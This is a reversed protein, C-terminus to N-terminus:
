RVQDRRFDIARREAEKWRSAEALAIIEEYWAFEEPGIRGAARDRAILLKIRELRKASRTNAATRLAASYVRNGFEIQPARPRCGGALAAAVALGCAFRRRPLWSQGSTAADTRM